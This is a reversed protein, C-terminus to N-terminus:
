TKNRGLAHSLTKGDKQDEGTTAAALLFAAGSFALTSVFYNLGNEIDSPNSVVMPLYVFSLLVLVMIGLYTAALRTKRNLVLSTGLVIFVTGALYAWLVHGPIWTPTRQDLDVAPLFEPHLFHELGFFIAPASIFIRAFTTLTCTGETRWKETQTGAFALAGGSFALDRFAIAWRFVDKPKTAINPIHLLLVFMILMTGLLIAALQSQKNVVISLAAALLSTGVFYTWFLHGPIWAPVIQSVFKTNTFHQAAFVAMPAAFFLSGWTVLKEQGRERLVEKRHAFLGIVVIVAGAFYPWFVNGPTLSFM